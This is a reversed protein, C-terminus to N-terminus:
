CFSLLRSAVTEKWLVLLTEYLDPTTPTCCLAIRLIMALDGTKWIYWWQKFQENNM